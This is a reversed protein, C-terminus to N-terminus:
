VGVAGDAPQNQTKKLESSSNRKSALRFYLYRGNNSKKTTFLGGYDYIHSDMWETVDRDTLDGTAVLARSDRMIRDHSRWKGDSMLHDIWAVPNFRWTSM